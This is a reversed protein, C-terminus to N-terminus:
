VAIKWAKEKIYRLGSMSWRELIAQNFEQWGGEPGALRLREAYAEAVDDRTRASDYISAWLNANVLGLVVHRPQDPLAACLSAHGTM